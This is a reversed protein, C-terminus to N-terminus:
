CGAGPAKARASGSPIRACVVRRSDHGGASGSRSRRRTPAPSSSTPRIPGSRGACIPRSGGRAANRQRRGGRAAHCRRSRTVFPLPQPAYLVFQARRRTPRHGLAASLEGLYRGVGTTEGLLERADIGITLAAATMADRADASSPRVIRTSFAGASADWSYTARGLGAGSRPVRRWRPSAPYRRMAEALAAHDDPEVLIGADGVVEPLAGRRSVIVPLGVTMAELVPLGFGEVHSPLVLM